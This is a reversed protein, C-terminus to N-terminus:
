EIMIENWDFITPKEINCSKFVQEVYPIREDNPNKTKYKNLAYLGLDCKSNYALCVAYYLWYESPTSEIYIAQGLWFEAEWYNEIKLYAFAIKVKAEHNDEKHFVKLYLQIVKEYNEKEFHKNAQKLKGSQAFTMSTLLLFTITILISKKM